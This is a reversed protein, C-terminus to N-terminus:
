HHGHDHGGHGHEADAEEPEDAMGVPETVLPRLYGGSQAVGSGLSVNVLALTEAVRRETQVRIDHHRSTRRDRLTLVIAGIMAVLLVLGAAQFLFIYDTYLIRGLAETNSLTAPAPSMRLEVSQPSLQWGALVAALEEDREESDGTM